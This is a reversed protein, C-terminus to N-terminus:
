RITKLKSGEEIAEKMMRKQKKTPKKKLQEMVFKWQEDDLAHVCRM